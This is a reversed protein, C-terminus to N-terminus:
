REIFIVLCLGLAWGSMPLSKELAEVEDDVSGPVPRTVPGAQCQRSRPFSPLDKTNESLM